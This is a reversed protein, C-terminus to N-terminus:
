FWSKRGYTIRLRMWWWIMASYQLITAQWSCRERSSAKELLLPLRGGWFRRWGVVAGSRGLGRWPESTSGSFFGDPPRVAWCHHIFVSLFARHATSIYAICYYYYTNSTCTSWNFTWYRPSCDANDQPALNYPWPTIYPKLHERPPRMWCCTPHQIIDFNYRHQM